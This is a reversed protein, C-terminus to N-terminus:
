IFYPKEWLVLEKGIKKNLANQYIKHSWSLDEMPIGGSIFINKRHRFNNLLTKNKIIDYINVIDRKKLKKEKLLKNLTIAPIDDYSSDLPEIKKRGKNEYVWRYHMKWDDIIINSDLYLNENPQIGGSLLLCSENKLCNNKIFPLHEGSAAVSIVDSNILANEISDVKYVKEISYNEKIYNCLNSSNKDVIDFIKVEEINKLVSLLSMFCTRNIIGAGIITLTKSDKKSLYKAAIGPVAGTRMASILTGDMISLPAGTIPDNLIILLISRPLGREEKNKRNSGYWKTGCINFRGGLYGIMAMFRRDPGSIPMNKGRPKNPFWIRIGHDHEDPGGAICDGSALLKFSEEVARICEKMNLVGAKITDEQSLFLVRLSSDEKM